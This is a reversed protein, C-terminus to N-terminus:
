WQRLVHDAKFECREQGLAANGESAHERSRQADQLKLGAVLMIELCPGVGNERSVGLIHSLGGLGEGIQHGSAETLLVKDPPCALLLAAGHAHSEKPPVRGLLADRGLYCM